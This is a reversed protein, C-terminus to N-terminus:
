LPVVDVCGSMTFCSSACAWCGLLRLVATVKHDRPQERAQPPQSNQSTAAAVQPTAHQSAAGHTHPNAECRVRSLQAHRLLPAGPGAALRFGISSLRSPLFAPCLRPHSLFFPTPPSTFSHSSSPSSPPSEFYVRCVCVCLCVSVCVCLCVSVCLWVCLCVSMSVSVSVSM